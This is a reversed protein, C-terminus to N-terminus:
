KSSRELKRFSTWFLRIASGLNMVVFLLLVLPLSTQTYRSPFYLALSSTLFMALWALFYLIVSAYFLLKLARPFDKFAQPILINIAVSLPTLVLLLWLNVYNNALAGLGQFPFDRFLVLRGGSVYNPNRLVAGFSWNQDLLNAWISEIRGVVIPLMFILLAFLVVLPLIRRWIIRYRWRSATPELTALGITAIGLVAGPLYITAAILAVGTAMWYRDTMLFYVIGLLIPAMFSRPVGAAVSTSATWLTTLVIFTLALTFGTVPDKAIEGIRFLFYVSLLLLPFILLENFLVPSLFSSALFFLFSYGPRVRDVFIRLSGLRIETIANGTIPDDVFLEPDEFRLMWHFKRFDDQITYPDQLRSWQVRIAVLTTIILVLYLLGRRKTWAKRLGASRTPVEANDIM